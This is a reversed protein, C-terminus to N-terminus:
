LVYHAFYNEYLSSFIYTYDAHDSKERESFKSLNDNPSTRWTHSYYLVNNSPTDMGKLMCIIYEM